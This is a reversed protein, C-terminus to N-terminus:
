RLVGAEFRRRVLWLLPVLLLMLIALTTVICGVFFSKPLFDLEVTHQGGPVMLGQIVGDVAFIKAKKGDVRAKWGPYYAQSIVLLSSGSGAVTALFRSSSRERVTVKAPVTCTPSPLAVNADLLAVKYPDFHTGDPLRGDTNAMQLAADDLAHAECVAWQLKPQKDRRALTVAPNSADVIFGDPKPSLPTVGGHEDLLGVSQIRLGFDGGPAMQISLTRIPVDAGKALIKETLYLHGKYSAGSTGTVTFSSAVLARKHRVVLGPRDIAWESTDIGARLSLQHVSGDGGWTVDAVTAGQPIGASCAMQSIIRLRVAHADNPVHYTVEYPEGTTVGCHRSLLAGDFIAGAPVRALWGVGLIAMLPSSAVNFHAHGITDLEAFNTMRSSLLPGYNTALPVDYLINSQPTFPSFAVLSSSVPIVRTRSALIQDIQENTQASAKISQPNTATFRWECFQGFSALDLIVLILLALAFPWQFEGFRVWLLVLSVGIFLLISPIYVAPDHFMSVFISTSAHDSQRPMLTPFISAISALGLCFIFVMAIIGRLLQKGGINQHRIERITVAALVAVAIIYIIGYRGQARFKGLVPLHYVIQGVPTESGMSVLLALVAIAVWFMVHPRRYLSVAAIVALMLPVIGTYLALETLNWPGSYVGYFTSTQTGFISPFMSLLLTKPVQSFSNFDNISWGTRVGQGALEYFPLASIASLMTGLAFIAIGAAAVGKWQRRECAALTILFVWFIVALGLGITSIQPHGGLISMSVAFAGLCVGSWRIDRSCIYLGWLIWPIWCASHIITAHGLHAMMFGSGSTVMGAVLASLRCGIYSAVFAYTGLAMIVYASIVFTDYTPLLLKPLYNAQVQLDAEMPYGLLLKDTILAWPKHFFPFYSILGDGPALVGGHVWAPMFYLAFFAAYLLGVILLELAPGRGLTAYRKETTPMENHVLTKAM